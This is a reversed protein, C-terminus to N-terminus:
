CAKKVKHRFNAVDALYESFFIFTSFANPRPVRVLVLLSGRM